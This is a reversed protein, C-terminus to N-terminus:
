GEFQTCTYLVAAICAGSETDRATKNNIRSAHTRFRKCERMLEGTISSSAPQNAKAFHRFSGTHM